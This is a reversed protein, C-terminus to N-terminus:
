LRELGYGSKLFIAGSKGAFAARAPSTSNRYPIRAASKRNELISAARQPAAIM